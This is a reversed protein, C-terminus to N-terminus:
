QKSLPCCNAGWGPPRPSAPSCFLHAADCILMVPRKALRDIWAGAPLGFLLWPLWASAQLLGVTFTSANLVLVAVLPMAVVTMSSGIKSTTEGFWFWRFDRRWLLGPRRPGAPLSPRLEM